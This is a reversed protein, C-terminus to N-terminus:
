GAANDAILVISPTGYEIDAIISFDYAKGGRNEQEIKWLTATTGDWFGLHYGEILFLREIIARAALFPVDHVIKRANKRMPEQSIRVCEGKARQGTLYDLTTVLEAANRNEEAM